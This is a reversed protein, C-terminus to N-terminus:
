FRVLDHGGSNKDFADDFAFLVLVADFAAGHPRGSWAAVSLSRFARSRDDAAGSAFQTVAKIYVEPKDAHGGEDGIVNRRSHFHNKLGFVAHKADAGIWRAPWSSESRMLAPLSVTLSSGPVEKKELALEKAM